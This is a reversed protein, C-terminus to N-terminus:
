QQQQDPPFVPTQPTTQPQAGPAGFGLSPNAPPNQNAGAAQNGAVNQNLPPLLSPQAPTNLLGGRDLAPDYIFQWQNYHDKKNFERITKETSTSAVGVIPGGGFVKKSLPDGSGTDTSNGTAADGSGPQGSQSPDSAGNLNTTQGASAALAQIGMMAQAAMAANTNNIAGGLAGAAGAAMAGAPTAGAIGAGFTMKVDGYHLLRFDKGTIPDKFHKRLFRLNNTNDLDELNVPYRGFKRYYGRIARSYQVGRHIMEEERDRKIKFTITPAVVTAMIAIMAVFFLLTLLVYGDRGSVTQKSRRFSVRCRM